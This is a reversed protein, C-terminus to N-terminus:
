RQDMKGRPVQSLIFNEQTTVLILPFRSRIIVSPTAKAMFKQTDNDGKVVKVRARQEMSNVNLDPHFM